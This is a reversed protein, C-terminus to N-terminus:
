RRLTIMEKYVHTVREAAATPSFRRSSERATVGLTHRLSPSAALRQLTEALAGADNPDVLLGDHGPSIIELPGGARAAVVPLGAAMGEVVVQGFPEPTISCHVLIDLQRLEAGVDDRFGRWVVRDQIGLQLALDHLRREYDAEGIMASGVLWAEEQGDPFARAFAELFVHQGKWEAM